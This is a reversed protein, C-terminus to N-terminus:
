GASDRSRNRHEVVPIIIGDGGVFDGGVVGEILRNDRVRRATITQVVTNNSM